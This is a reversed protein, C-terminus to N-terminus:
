DKVGSPTQDQLTAQGIVNINVGSFTRCRPKPLRLPILNYMLLPSSFIAVQLFLSDSLCARVRSPLPMALPTALSSSDIAVRPNKLGLFCYLPGLFYLPNM